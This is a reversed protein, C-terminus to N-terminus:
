LVSVHLNPVGPLGVVWKILLYRKWAPFPHFRMRGIDAGRFVSRVMIPQTHSFLDFSHKGHYSGYGSSGLGGFPIFQSSLHIVCDNRMTSGAPVQRNIESFVAESKTFIYSCLPTGPMQRMFTVAEQRSKVTVVPLIPGFIEEQMLKSDAPPNIIITPEVYRAAANCFKSGGAIIKTRKDDMNQEVEEILAVLRQAHKETIIRGFETKSPDDGYKLRLSKKM